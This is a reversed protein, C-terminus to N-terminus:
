IQERKMCTIMLNKIVVDNHLNNMILSTVVPEDMFAYDILMGIGKKWTIEKVIRLTMPSASIDYLVSLIFKKEIKDKTSLSELASSIVERM